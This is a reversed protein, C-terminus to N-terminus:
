MMFRAPYLQSKGNNNVYRPKKEFNYSPKEGSGDFLNQVLQTNLVGKIIRVPSKERYTQNIGDLRRWTTSVQRETAEIFRGSQSM